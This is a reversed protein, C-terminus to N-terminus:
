NQLTRVLILLWVLGAIAALVGRRAASWVDFDGQDALRWIRRGLELSLIAVCPRDRRGQM